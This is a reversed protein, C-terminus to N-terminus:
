FFAVLHTESSTFDLAYWSDSNATVKSLCRCHQGGVKMDGGGLKRRPPPASGNCMRRVSQSTFRRYLSEAVTGPCVSSCFSIDLIM